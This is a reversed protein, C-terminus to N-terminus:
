RLLKNKFIVLIRVVVLLWIVALVKFRQSLRNLKQTKFVHASDEILHRFRRGLTTRGFDLQPMDRNIRAICCEDEYAVWARRFIQGLATKAEHSVVAQDAYGQRFGAKYAKMTWVGDSKCRFCGDFLGCKDFLDKKVFLNATALGHSRELYLDQRLYVVHDYMQAATVMGRGTFHYDIRGAVMDVNSALLFGIGKEIWDKAPICDADTFAIIEGRAQLIGANRAVGDGPTLEKLYRVDCSLELDPILPERSGNDIVIVEFRDRSLTQQDLANLCKVLRHSDNLVPIIVSVFLNKEVM